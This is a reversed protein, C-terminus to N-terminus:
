VHARGIELLELNHYYEWEVNHMRVIKLRNKLASHAIYGCSHLGEFLIPDNDTKLNKLLVSPMRSTTIFPKNTALSQAMSLPSLDRKYYHVKTCYKELEAQPQRDRYQFCHLTIAIGAEHLAKIKYFVDMVGGYDAPFPIDFSIIHLHTATM